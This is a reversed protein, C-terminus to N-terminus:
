RAWDYLRLPPPPILSFQLFFNRVPYRWFSLLSLIIRFYISHQFPDGPPIFNLFFNRFPYRRIELALIQSLIFSFNWQLQFLLVFISINIPFPLSPRFRKKKHFTSLPSVKATITLICFVSKLELTYVSKSRPSHL